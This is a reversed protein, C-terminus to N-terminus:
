RTRSPWMTGRGPDGEDHGGAACTAPTGYARESCFPACDTCPPRGRPLLSPPPTTWRDPAAGTPGARGAWTTAVPVRETDPALLRGLIRLMLHAAPCCGDPDM